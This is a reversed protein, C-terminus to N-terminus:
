YVEDVNETVVKGTRTDIINNFCDTVLEYREPKPM